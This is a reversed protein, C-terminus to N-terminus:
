PIGQLANYSSYEPACQQQDESYNLAQMTAPEIGQTYSRVKESM